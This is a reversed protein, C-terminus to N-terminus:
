RRMACPQGPRRACGVAVDATDLATLMGPLSDLATALDADMYVIKPAGAALVGARVAAGKGSNQAVTIVRSNPVPELTARQM